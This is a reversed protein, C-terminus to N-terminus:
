EEEKPDESEEEKLIPPKVCNRKAEKARELVSLQLEEDLLATAMADKGNYKVGDLIWTKTSPRDIIGYRAGIDRVEINRDIVGELYKIGFEAVRFPPAKKNKGVKARIHHGVQEGDEEIRSEKSNIMGFNIMQSCAHKLAQGGPASTPDGYTVGPTFRLQNIAIFLIGTQTLLPTLKRLEPPLFRAMLAMNAKGAKSAEEMPVIMAPVSDLVIIGLGTGGTELEIDLIGPRVKKIEGTNKNPKGPVGVLRDFIMAAKNERYVYLRETDVGISEAWGRHFSFEADIFMAWNDPNQKQWKAIAALSMLTKGSQEFGAFQVIHGKPMGWIGLADDLAYSGTSIADSYTTMDSNGAFLGEEGHQKEMEKCIYAMSKKKSM